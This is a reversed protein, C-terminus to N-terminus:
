KKKTTPKKKTTSTKKATKKETGFYKDRIDKPFYSDPETYRVRKTTAM